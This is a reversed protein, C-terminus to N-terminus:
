LKKKPFFQRWVHASIGLLPLLFVILGLIFIVTEGVIGFIKGNHIDLMYTLLKDGLENSEVPRLYTLQSCESLIRVESNGRTPYREGVPGMFMQYGANRETPLFFMKIETGPNVDLAKTWVKDASSVDCSSQNDSIVTSDARGLTEAFSMSLDMRALGFGTLAFLFLPVCLWIGLATHSRRLKPPSSIGAFKLDDTKVKTKQLWLFVGTFCFLATLIALTMLAAIEFGGMFMSNHLWLPWVAKTDEAIFHAKPEGTYPDVVVVGHGHGGNARVGDYIITPAGFRMPTTEPGFIGEIHELPGYKEQAKDIWVSPLAWAEDRHEYNMVDSGFEWEYLAAQFVMGTGSIGILAIYLGLVLGSWRHLKSVTIRVQRM